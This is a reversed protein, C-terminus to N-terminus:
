LNKIARARSTIQVEASRWQSDYYELLKKTEPDQGLVGGYAHMILHKVHTWLIRMQVQEPTILDYKGQYLHYSSPATALQQTSKKKSRDKKRGHKKSGTKM